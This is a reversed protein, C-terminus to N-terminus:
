ILKLALADHGMISDNQLFRNWRSQRYLSGASGISICSRKEMHLGMVLSSKLVFQNAIDYLGSLIVGRSRILIRNSKNSDEVDEDGVFNAILILIPSILSKSM